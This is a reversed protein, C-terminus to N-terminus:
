LPKMGTEPVDPTDMMNDPEFADGADSPFTEPPRPKKPDWAETVKSLLGELRNVATPSPGTDWTLLVMGTFASRGKLEVLLAEYIMSQLAVNVPIRYAAEGPVFMKFAPNAPVQVDLLAVPKGAHARALSDFTSLQADWLMRFDHLDIKDSAHPLRKAFTISGAVGNFDALDWCATTAVFTPSAALIVKGKFVARVDGVQKKWYEVDAQEGIWSVCLYDARAAQADAAIEALPRSYPNEPAYTAPPLLVLSIGKAHAAKAIAALTDRSVEPTHRVAVTTAFVKRWEEFLKPL